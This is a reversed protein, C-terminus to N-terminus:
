LDSFQFEEIGHERGRPSCARGLAFMAAWAALWRSGEWGMATAGCSCAAARRAARETLDFRIWALVAFLLVLLPIAPNPM